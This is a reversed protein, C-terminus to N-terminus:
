AHAGETAELYSVARVRDAPWLLAPGAALAQYETEREQAVSGAPQGALHWAHTEPSLRAPHTMMVYTGDPAADLRRRLAAQWGAATQAGACPQSDAPLGKFAFADILGEARALAAIRSRLDGLWSVGMHEDLYRIVLGADRARQLQAQIEAIAEGADLGRHHLEQPTALFRGDADVLSAVRARPSVPGWKTTEWEANLTIHLGLCVDTQGQWRRVVDAFAPGPVMISINRLSGCRWAAELAANASIASGADDGRTILRIAKQM